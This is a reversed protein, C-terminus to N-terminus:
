GPVGRPRDEAHILLLNRTGGLGHGQEQVRTVYLPQRFLRVVAGAMTYYGTVRDSMRILPDGTAENVLGLARLKAFHTVFAILTDPVDGGPAMLRQDQTGAEVQCPVRVPAMYVTAPVRPGDAGALRQVVPSRFRDDYGDAARTAVPDIREFEVLFPRILRGSYAM